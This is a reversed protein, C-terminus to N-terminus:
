HGWFYHEDTWFNSSKYEYYTVNVNKWRDCEQHAGGRVGVMHSHTCIRESRVEVKGTKVTSTPIISWILFVVIGSVIICGIKILLSRQRKTLQTKM